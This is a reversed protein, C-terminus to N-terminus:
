RRRLAAGTTVCFWVVLNQWHFAAGSRKSQQITASLAQNAPTDSMTVTTGDYADGAGGSSLKVEAQGAPAIAM